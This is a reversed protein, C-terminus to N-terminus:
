LPGGRGSTLNAKCFAINGCGGVLHGNIVDVAEPAGGGDSRKYFDVAVFNSWRYGAAEYCTNVMSLLPASNDRCAETKNPRSQFYNVLVLSRSTTNMAASEARNPCLGPIMGGNGYQNEVMYSWQYAIGELAEKSPDSTFVVLRQNNQLMDDFTPWDGGDKPMRSAPFWFQRLGAADFVKTLGNPSTVHDELIITVIESPNEELFVKIEKLVNIALQFATFDNCQGHCLWINNNFDYTDLMLGRVGNHLQSTISDEQNTPALIVFGTGSKVGTRAYANHTTLWSYRNFALGKVKSTPSIAQTRTCRPQVGAARCIECHRGSDCDKNSFCTQGEKLATSFGFLFAAACLTAAFIIKKM